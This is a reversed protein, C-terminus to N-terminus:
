PTYSVRDTGSLATLWTQGPNLKITKGSADKFVFQSPKSAKYWKGKTVGGDQFIYAPGDGITSYESHYGDGALRYPMILAIVVKPSIQKHTDADMHPAGGENRRYSNTKASYNYHVDYTPGSLTLKISVATPKPRHPRAKKFRAFGTYKSTIFGRQVELQNLAAISTYVNHPADRSSIRHYSGAAGFQDLDRVHWARIDALAEPSGGVHAYGADFGLNWAAYYPRASRIPGVNGPATDQYLALFRTIGGEAIAEFVVGAQGLGSQPRAWVSNEIMVGTVTRKNVIPDVPLGTLTSPVTKTKATVKPIPKITAPKPKHTLAYVGIGGGILLLVALLTLWEKKGPPWHLTLKEKWSSGTKKPMAHNVEVSSEPVDPRDDAAVEEPTRFVDTGEQKIKEAKTKKGASGNDSDM